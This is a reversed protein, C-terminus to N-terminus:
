GHFGKGIIESSNTILIFADPEVAKVYNRLHVAQQPSLVTFVIFKRRHTFAGQAECLTAGRNLTANIYRCIPEPNDCIINFYKSLNFSEIAGNIVFTKTMLGVLAFLSTEVDFVFFAAATVLFDVGMLASGVDAGLRRKLIMAPIDTGGSSAGINFLLAAGVSPLFIALVLELVPQDTLPGALPWLFELLWLLASMLVSVYVTKLGFSKGLFGFGVLLLAVNLGATIVSPSWPTVRGLVVALGTVGGFCFNNPFKFFYVGATTLVTGLTILLLQGPLTEMWKKM